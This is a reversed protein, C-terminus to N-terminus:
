DRHVVVDVKEGHHHHHKKKHKKNLIKIFGEVGNEAILAGILILPIGLVACVAAAAVDVRHQTWPMILLCGGGAVSGLGIATETLRGLGCIATKVPGTYVPQFLTISVAILLGIFQKKIM